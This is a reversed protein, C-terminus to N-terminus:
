NESKIEHTVRGSCGFSTFSSILLGLSQALPGELLKYYKSNKKITTVFINIRNNHRYSPYHHHQGHSPHCHHQHHHHRHQHHHHHYTLIGPSVTSAFYYLLGPGMITRGISTNTKRRKWQQDTTIINMIKIINSSSSLALQSYAPCSIM